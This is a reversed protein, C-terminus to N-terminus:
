IKGPEVLEMIIERSRAPVIVPSENANLENQDIWIRGVKFPVNIEIDKPEQTFKNNLVIKLKNKDIFAEFSIVGFYSPANQVVIPTNPKFWRKPVVPMLVLRHDEEFFLINRVTSIFDAAAWGHHGDGIAGGMTIPNISEPWTYTQSTAGMLWDFIEIARSQQRSFIHNQIFHTTLYTGFGSHNVDHFFGNDKFTTAEMHRVTNVVREDYQSLVRCPYVCSLCGVAASDMRRNPSIPMLPAGLREEVEKLSINVTNLLKDFAQSFRQVSEPDGMERAASATDRLGALAWFDDWYYYDHAGFHEASLGPPLLGRLHLPVQPKDTENLKNIIWEAGKKMYPYILKLFDMDRTVRFYEFLIWIAEGNSDWEHEQSRFFGDKKQRAPYTLLVRRAEELYGTKILGNVLYAADRLWFSHYSSPGPNISDGDYFLQLYAKNADFASQVAAEPVRIKMTSSLTVEWTKVVDARVQEYDPDEDFVSETAPTKRVPLRAEFFRTEAPALEVTYEVAATCLGVQCQSQDAQVYETDLFLSVDGIEYNSCYVKDPPTLFKVAVDDDVYFINEPSRRIKNILSVGEVNFPRISFFVSVQQKVNGKNKVAIRQFLLDVGNARSGFVEQQFLVNEREFYTQVIPLDQYLQQTVGEIRSPAYLEGGVGLWSDLSWSNYYPGVMGREDVIGEVDSNLSGISTWNRHATNISSMQFGTVTFSSSSSDYQKDIWYPLVWDLNQSLIVRNFVGRILNMVNLDVLEKPIGHAMDHSAKYLAEIYKVGSEPVGFLRMIRFLAFNRIM